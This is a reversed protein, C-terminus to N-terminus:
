NKRKYELYKVLFEWCGIKDTIGDYYNNIRKILDDAEFWKVDQVEETQLKLDSVALERNIVYYENFHNNIIDDKINTSTISGIFFLENQNIDIGIEEKAERIVAQFGFEGTLVHGGASVDWLNPWMRKNSSRQQLLIQSKSNIIFVVVARHWLGEKHCISRSAIKGTFLGNKDLVDFMEEMSDGLKM